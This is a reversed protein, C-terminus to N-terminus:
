EELCQVGKRTVKTRVFSLNCSLVASSLQGNGTVVLELHIVGVSRFLEQLLKWRAFYARCCGISDTLM